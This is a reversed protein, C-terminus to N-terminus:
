VTVIAANSAKLGRRVAAVGKAIMPVTAPAYNIWGSGDFARTPYSVVVGKKRPGVFFLVGLANNMASTKGLPTRVTLTAQVSAVNDCGMFDALSDVTTPMMKANKLSLRAATAQDRRDEDSGPRETALKSALTAPIAVESMPFPEWQRQPDCLNAIIQAVTRDALATDGPKHVRDETLAINGGAMTLTTLTDNRHGILFGVRPTDRIAYQLGMAEFEEPIVATVPRRENHLLLIGSMAWEYDTIGSFLQRAAATLEGTNPDVINWDILDQRVQKDVDVIPFTGLEYPLENILGDVYLATLHRQDFRM